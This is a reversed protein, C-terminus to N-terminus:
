EKECYQNIYKQRINGLDADEFKDLVQQPDRAKAQYESTSQTILQRQTQGEEDETAILPFVFDFDHGVPRKESLKSGPMSPIYLMQGDVTDRRQKASFYVSMDLSRFARLLRIVTEQMEGYARRGDKHRSKMESLCMEAMESVSDLVAWQYNHDSGALYKYMERLRDTTDLEVFDVDVDVLSALGSECSGVLAPGDLTRIMYTKGAGPPGYVLFKLNADRRISETSDITEQFSM